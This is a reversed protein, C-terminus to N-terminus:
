YGRPLPYSAPVDLALSRWSLTAGGAVSVTDIQIRDGADVKVPRVGFLSNGGTLFQTATNIMPIPDVGAISQFFVLPQPLFPPIKVYTLIVADTAILAVGSVSVTAWVYIRRRDPPTLLQIIGPGAGAPMVASGRIDKWEVPESGLEITPAPFPLDGSEVNFLYKQLWNVPKQLILRPM